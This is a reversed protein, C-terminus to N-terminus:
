CPFLSRSYRLRSPHSYAAARQEVLGTIIVGYKACPKTAYCVASAGIRRSGVALASSLAYRKFAQAKTTGDGGAINHICRGSQTIRQTIMALNDNRDIQVERAV